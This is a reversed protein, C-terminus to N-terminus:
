TADSLEADLSFEDAIGLSRLERGIDEVQAHLEAEVLQKFENKLHAVDLSVWPCPEYGHYIDNKKRKKEAALRWSDGKLVLQAAEILEDRQQFLASAREVNSRSTM